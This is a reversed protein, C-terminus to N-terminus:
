IHISCFIYKNAIILSIACFSILIQIANMVIEKHNVCRDNTGVVRKSKNWTPIKTFPNQPIDLIEDWWYRLEGGVGLMWKWTTEIRVNIEHRSYISVQCDCNNLDHLQKSSLSPPDKLRLNSLIIPRGDRHSLIWSKLLYYSFQLCTHRTRQVTNCHVWVAAM